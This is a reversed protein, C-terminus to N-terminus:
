WKITVSKVNLRGGSTFGYLEFYYDGAAVDGWAYTNCENTRSGKNNDPGLVDKWLILTADRFGSAGDTSCGSFTVSTSTSDRNYDHWRSSENGPLWNSIYTSKSGEAHAPVAGLFGVLMAGAIVSAIKKSKEQM